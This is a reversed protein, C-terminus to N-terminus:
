FSARWGASIMSHDEHFGGLTGEEGDYYHAELYLEHPEWDVFTIEPNFYIDMKDLGAFFRINAIWTHEAFPIEISGNVNYVNERELLNDEFLHNGAIQLNVRIDEDGPYFEMGAAWNAGEVDDTYTGTNANTGPLDDLYVAEFRWTIGDNELAFDGGVATVRPYQATFVGNYTFYPMTQRGHQATLAYEIGEYNSSYRLGVANDTNPADNIIVTNPLITAAVPAPLEVGLVKQRARDIPYWISDVDALEAERFTPMYILDLKSNDGFIEARITPRSRRRDQLDDLNFRKGDITSLRDSPPIEDIRGWIITQTGVTITTNDGRYSIWNDGYDLDTDHWGPNGDQSYGDVRAELQGQWENGPKWEGLLTVHGYSLSDVGQNDEVLLSHELWAKDISITSTSKEDSASVDMESETTDDSELTIEDEDSEISIEESEAEDVIMIQDESSSDDDIVIMEETEEEDEIIIMEEAAVAGSLVCGALLGANLLRYKKMIFGKGFDDFDWKKMYYDLFM